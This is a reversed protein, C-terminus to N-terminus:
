RLSPIWVYVSNKLEKASLSSSCLHHLGAAISISGMVLVRVRGSSASDVPPVAETLAPSPVAEVRGTPVGLFLAAPVFLESIPQFSAAPM